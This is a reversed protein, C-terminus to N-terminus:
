GAYEDKTLRYQIVSKYTGNLKYHDKLEGEKIMKHKLMVKASAPNDPFHTAYIKHLKLIEFGFKLIMGAAQSAIGKNRFPEAIWYGVEAHNHIKDLHLGIQGILESDTRLSVAFVYRDKNLFGQEIFNLRKTADEERYPFPINLLQSSISRNSLYKILAPIDAQCTRRLTLAATNLEPFDTM